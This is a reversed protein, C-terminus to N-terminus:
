VANCRPLCFEKHASRDIFCSTFYITQNFTWSLSSHPYISVIYHIYERDTIERLKWYRTWCLVWHYSSERIWFSRSPLLLPGILYVRSVSHSPQPFGHFVDPYDTNRCLISSLVERLPAAIGVREKLALRVSHVALICNTYLDIFNQVYYIEQSVNQYRVSCM